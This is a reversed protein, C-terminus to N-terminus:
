RRLSDFFEVSTTRGERSLQERVISKEFKTCQSYTNQVATRMEYQAHNARSRLIYYDADRSEKPEDEFKSVHFRQGTYLIIARRLNDIRETSIDTNM